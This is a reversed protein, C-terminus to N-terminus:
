FFVTSGIPEVTKKQHVCSVAGSSSRGICVLPQSLRMAAVKGLCGDGVVWKGQEREKQKGCRQRRCRAFLNGIFAAFGYDQVLAIYLTSRTRNWKESWVMQRSAGCVARKNSSAPISTKSIVTDWLNASVATKMTYLRSYFFVIYM